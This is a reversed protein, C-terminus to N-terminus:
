ELPLFLKVTTGQDEQSEVEITGGHQEVIQKASALGVGTGPVRNLVNSARYYTDFVHPLDTAPIGMGQDSVSLVAQGSSVDLTLVIQGGKPSFKIANSLLNSVVRTLRVKDWEGTLEKLKTNLHLRHKGAPRRAASVQEKALQVLDCRRKQLVLERGMQLRAVDSMEGIMGAM